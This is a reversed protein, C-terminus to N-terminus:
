RPVTLKAALLERNSADLLKYTHEVGDNMARWVFRRDTLQQATLIATYGGATQQYGNRDKGDRYAKAAGPTALWTMEVDGNGLHRLVLGPVPQPQPQPIAELEAIRAELQTVKAALAACQALADVLAEDSTALQAVLEAAKATAAAAEAQAAMLAPAYNAWEEAVVADRHTYLADLKEGVAFLASIAAAIDTDIADLEASV